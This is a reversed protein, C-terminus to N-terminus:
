KIMATLVVRRMGTVRIRRKFYASYHAKKALFTGAKKTTNTAEELPLQSEIFEDALLQFRAHHTLYSLNMQIYSGSLPTHICTVVM